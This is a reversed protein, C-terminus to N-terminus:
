TWKQALQLFSEDALLRDMVSDELGIAVELDLGPDNEVLPPPRPLIIVCGDFVADSPVRLAEPVGLGLGWTRDYVGFDTWSASAIDRGRFCDYQPKFDSPDDRSALLGINQAIRAPTLVTNIRTRIAAAAPTLGERGRLVSVNLSPTMVPVTANGLYTSPLSPNVRWRINGSLGLVTTESDPLGRANVIHRWLFANLADQTSFASAISKIIALASRSFRFVHYGNRPIQSANQPARPNTPALHYEHFDTIDAGSAGRVAMLQTRDLNASIRDRTTFFRTGAAAAKTNIAWTGAIINVGTSDCVSHHASLALFLGGNVFNAQAAFVPCPPNPVLNLLLPLPCLEAPSLQSPPFRQSKLLWYCPLADTLDVSPFYVSGVNPGDSDIVQTRNSTADAYM